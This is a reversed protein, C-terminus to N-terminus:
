IFSAVYRRRKNIPYSVFSLVFFPWTRGFVCPCFIVISDIKHKTGAMYAIDADGSADVIRKAKIALRGSKCEVVVGTIIGGEMLVEVAM